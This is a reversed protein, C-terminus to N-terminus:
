RGNPRYSSAAKPAEASCIVFVRISASTFLDDNRLGVTWSQDSDPYSELLAVNVTGVGKALGHMGVSLNDMGGGMASRGGPCTISFNCETDATCTHDDSTRLYSSLGATDTDPECVVDGATSISRISQGPPCSEAVRSQVENKNIDVAGISGNAIDETGLSNNIVKAAGVSDDALKANTVAGNELKPTTVAGNELDATQIRVAQYTFRLGVVTADELGPSTPFWFFVSVYDLGASSVDLQGALLATLDVEHVKGAALTAPIALNFLLGAGAIEGDRKVSGYVDFSGTVNSKPILVVKASTLVAFDDPVAFAFSAFGAGTTPWPFALRPPALHTPSVWVEEAAVPGALALGVLVGFVRYGIRRPKM